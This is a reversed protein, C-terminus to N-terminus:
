DDLFCSFNCFSIEGIVWIKVERYVKWVAPIGDNTNFGIKGCTVTVTLLAMFPYHTWCCSGLTLCQPFTHFSIIHWRDVWQKTWICM